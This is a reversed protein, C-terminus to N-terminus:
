ELPTGEFNIQGNIVTENEEDVTYDANVVNTDETNIEKESIDNILKDEYQVEDMSYAQQMDVSLIGWKGLMNRLVTKLAMADYNNKWGFDSKSFKRKHTEIEEKSWYVTKKFGNILEFYGAYGIIQESKRKNFDIQIEETLPNWDILEGERIHVANIHKYQASRLALQIYGKYGIQFQAQGKYPVIWAYGLNKEIPLDLTAAKMAEPVLTQPNCKKLLDDNNYLTLLSSCFQPAKKGLVEEFRQKIKPTDLYSSLSLGGKTEKRQSLQNKLTSTTAM